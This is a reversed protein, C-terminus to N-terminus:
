CAKDQFRHWQRGAPANRLYIPARLRVFTRVVYLGMEVAQPSALINAAQIAGNETFACPLTRTFKLRALPCM